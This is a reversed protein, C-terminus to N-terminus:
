VYQVLVDDTMQTRYDQHGSIIDIESLDYGTSSATAGGATGLHYSSYWPGSLDSLVNINNSPDSVHSAGSGVAPSQPNPAAGTQNQIIGNTMLNIGLSGGAGECCAGYNTDFPTVNMVLDNTTYPTIASAQNWQSGGQGNVYFTHGPRPALATSQPGFNPEPQVLVANLLQRAELQEFVALSADRLRDKASNFKVTSNRTRRKIDGNSRLSMVREEYFAGVARHREMCECPC